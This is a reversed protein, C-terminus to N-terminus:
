LNLTIGILNGVANKVSSCCFIECNMHFCLLGQIALATKPFYFSAPPVVKRVDSQVVFSCNDLCYPVPVFLFISPLFLIYIGPIFGHM